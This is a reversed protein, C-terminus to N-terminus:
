LFADGGPEAKLRAVLARVEQVRDKACVLTADATHVIVLDRAGVAAVLGGDAFAVVGESDLLITRGRTVNAGAHGPGDAGDLAVWSGLDDWAFGARAVLARASREMVAVDISVSPAAGYYRALAAEDEALRAPLAPLLAAIEPAHARIEELMVRPPFLFMGANWLHGGDSAYRSATALDPKERFAAVTALPSGPAVPAGVEIYGYGTEPRTPPIGFTVIAGRELAAEGARILEERFREPPEVRHDSPLVAVVADEGADRLWWAALAVAPATNKGVPEAVIHHHPIEPVADRVAGALDRATIVFTDRPSAAGALRALTDALMPRDSLLPLLQKPRARRSLPWFREGRGGALIVPHLRM